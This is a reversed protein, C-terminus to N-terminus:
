KLNPIVIEAIDKGEKWAQYLDIFPEEHLDNEPIYEPNQYPWYTKKVNEELWHVLEAFMENTKEPMTKVLNKEEYPDHEIDFLHLRGHWDFILKYDGERIASKPTLFHGDFPDSMRVNFPYHWYRITKDYANEKNETDSLLPIISRGDMDEREIIEEADYGAVELLSPLIDTADVPISCWKGGEINGKWRFILPVRIGGETLCAKGGVFPYNNTGMTSRRRIDSDLGGNDSMFVLLTNDDLGTEELTNFIDGVTNDLSKLMAGYEPLNHNNWGRTEKSAFYEVDDEKGQYPTHVAFHCFYLFFPQDSNEARERIFNVAQAGMEDTLYPKGTDKGLSGGRLLNKEIASKLKDSPKVWSERWNLYAFGGADKFILEEFGNDGPQYGKAEFGGLHWKGIFASHYDELAEAITLVDWGNDLEQGTPLATNSSGNMWAQEVDLHDTHYLVDHIYSDEPVEKEQNYWTPEHGAATTFGIRSAYKGTLLAARTPSCLQNAYAQTFAVGENIFRDLNPTEYFMSDKDTGLTHHAYAQIDMYGLDDALIFIINPRKEVSAGQNLCGTLAVFMAAVIISLNRIM